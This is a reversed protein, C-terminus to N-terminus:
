VHARGIQMVTRTTVRRAIRRDTHSRARDVAVRVVTDGDQLRREAGSLRRGDRLVRVLDDGDVVVGEDALLFPAWARTTSVTRVDSATAVRVAIGPDAPAEEVAPAPDQAPDDPTTTTAAQAAPALSVGLALAVATTTAARLGRAVQHRIM